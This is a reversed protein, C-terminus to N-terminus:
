PDFSRGDYPGVMGKPKLIQQPKKAKLEYVLILLTQLIESSLTKQKKTKKQGPCSTVNM